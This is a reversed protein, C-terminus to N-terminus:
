QNIDKKPRGAKKPEDGSEQAQEAEAKAALLAEQEAKREAEAEAEKRQELEQLLRGIEKDREAYKQELEATAKAVAADVAADFKAKEAEAKAAAAEKAVAAAKERQQNVWATPDHLITIKYGQRKLSAHVHTDFIKKGFKQVYAKSLKKGTKRDYNEIELVVHYFKEEGKPVIYNDPTLNEIQTDRGDKTIM